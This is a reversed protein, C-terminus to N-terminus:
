YGLRYKVTNLLQQRMSRTLGFFWVALVVFLISIILILVSSGITNVGIIYYLILPMPVAVLTVKLCVWYVDLIEKWNYDAIKNILIPKIICGAIIFVILSVWSLALPSAGLKFLVFVVPFSLLSIMPSILANEKIRGKAYLATYFSMDFVQFLNQIIVLQLFPVSFEPVEVLWLHLIPSALLCIPLCLLLMLYYSYKTSELLLKHSGEVDGAALLKIIQPNVATRFNTVFLNAATNVQLSIARATVISPAFFYNLLLLIGQTNLAIASGAVLGWGSFSFIEKFLEKDIFFLRYKSESFARNCYIVYFIFIGAQFFTLLMAYFTLKDIDSVNLLFVIALKGVADVIGVYAFVKMREHSIIAANYPVSIVTIIATIISLHFVWTAAVFRNDPIVMKNNFYWLGFTEALIVVLLALLIHVTLTTSFTAKLRDINGAGLEYTLFRSTGSSLASNLFSLFGVIGGVAQYIGYDDIGLIQLIVRSTYLSIIMTFLMRIYLFVTNQAVTKNDIAM